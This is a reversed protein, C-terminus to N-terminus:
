VFIELLVIRNNNITIIVRGIVCLLDKKICRSLRWLDIKRGIGTYFSLPIIEPVEEFLHNVQPCLRHHYNVCVQLADCGFPNLVQAFRQKLSKGIHSRKVYPM